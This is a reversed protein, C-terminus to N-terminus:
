ACLSRRQLRWTQDVSLLREITREGTALAELPEDRAGVRAKASQRDLGVRAAAASRITLGVHM